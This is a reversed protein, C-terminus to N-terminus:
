VSKFAHGTPLFKDLNRRFLREKHKLTPRGLFTRQRATLFSKKRSNKRKIKSLSPFSSLTKIRWKTDMKSSSMFGSVKCWTACPGIHKQKQVAIRQYLSSIGQQLAQSSCKLVFEKIAWIPRRKEAWIQFYKNKRRLIM